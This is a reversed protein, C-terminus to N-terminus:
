LLLEWWTSGFTQWGNTNSKHPQNNTIVTLLLTMKKLTLETFQVFGEMMVVAAVDKKHRIIDFKQVFIMIITVLCNQYTRATTSPKKEMQKMRSKSHHLTRTVTVQVPRVHFVDLMEVFLDRYHATKMQVGTYFDHWKSELKFLICLVDSAAYSIKTCWIRLKKSVTISEFGETM